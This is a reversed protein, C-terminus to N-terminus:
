RWMFVDDTKNMYTILEYLDDKFTLSNM